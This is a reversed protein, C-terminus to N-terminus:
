NSRCFHLSIKLFLLEFHQNHKRTNKPLCLFAKLLLKKTGEIENSKNNQRFFILVPCKKNRSSTNIYFINKWSYRSGTNLWHPGVKDPRSSARTPTYSSYLCSYLLLSIFFHICNESRIQQGTRSRMGDRSECLFGSLLAIQLVSDDTKGKTNWLLTNAGCLEFNQQIQEFEHLM